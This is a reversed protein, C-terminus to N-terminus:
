CCNSNNAPAKSTILKTGQKTKPIFVEDNKQNALAQRIVEIM